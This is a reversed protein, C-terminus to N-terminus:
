CNHKFPVPFLCHFHVRPYLSNPLSVSANNSLYWEPVPIHHNSMKRPIWKKAEAEWLITNLDPFNHHIDIGNSSWRGLSWGSLESGQTLSLCFPM